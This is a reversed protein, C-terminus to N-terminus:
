RSITKTMPSPVVPQLTILPAQMLPGTPMLVPQAVLQTVPVAGPGVPVNYYVTPVAPVPPCAAPLLGLHSAIMYDVYQKRLDPPLRNLERMFLQQNALLQKDEAACKGDRPIGMSKSSPTKVAHYKSVSPYGVVDTQHRGNRPQSSVKNDTNRDSQSQGAPRGSLAAMSSEHVPKAGTKIGADSPIMVTHFKESNIKNVASNAPKGIVGNRSEYSEASWHSRNASQSRTLDGLSVGSGFPTYYKVSCHETAPEVDSLASDRDSRDGKSDGDGLLEFLSYSDNVSHSWIGNM